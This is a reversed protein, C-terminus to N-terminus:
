IKNANNSDLYKNLKDIVVKSIHDKIGTEISMEIDECYMEKPHDIPTAKYDKEDYCIKKKERSKSRSRSRSYTISMKDEASSESIDSMYKKDRKQKNVSNFRGRNLIKFELSEDLSIREYCLDLKKYKELELVDISTYNKFLEIMKTLNENQDKPRIIHFGINRAKMTPLIKSEHLGCPCDYRTGFRIGHGPNDLLLFLMKESEDRWSLNFMADNLADLVAEPPDGGGSASLKDLFAITEAFSSFPHIKTVWSSDQPEHDRYAVIGFKLMNEDIKKNQFRLQSQIMIEKISEKAGTIYSLMSGTADIVFVIDLGFFSEINLTDLAEM